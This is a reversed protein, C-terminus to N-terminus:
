LEHGYTLTLDGCHGPIAGAVGCVSGWVMQGDLAAKTSDLGVSFVSLKIDLICVCSMVFVM